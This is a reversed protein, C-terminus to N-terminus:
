EELGTGPDLFRTMVIEEIEEVSILPVKLPSSALKFSVVLIAWTV